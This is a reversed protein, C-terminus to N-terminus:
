GIKFYRIVLLTVASVSASLVAGWVMDVVAILPTFGKITSLNTLDYTAYCVLGFLAGMYIAQAISGAILAPHIVFIVLGAVFIMYFALAVAFNPRERLLAGIESMYITRGATSLWIADIILFVILALSYQWAYLQM